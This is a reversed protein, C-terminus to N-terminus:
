VSCNLAREAKYRKLSDFLRQQVAGKGALAHVIAVDVTDRAIVRYVFIRERQGQRWVRRLFQDDLEQDYTLSHYIVARGASQLNLGHAVSQPQGLLVPLLGANWARVIRDAEKPTVGGGIHPPVSGLVAKLGQQLRELDHHFEYSILAPQGALEEVLECVADTKADHVNKWRKGGLETYIGGNALQRCKMSAVGSNLATVLDGELELFLESEMSDYQERAKKDLDVYVTRQILPPLELYDGAEMRLAVPKIAKHIRRETDPLMIWDYEGIQNFYQARFHTFYPGLAIGGDVLYIQSFLNMLGNPAPSGTLAYRRVFRRLHRKLLKFRQTSSNKFRSSEDVVLMDFPWEQKRFDAELTRFLWELGEPNILYVDAPTHLAQAKHPGHLTVVRLGNFDAWKRAEAPWVLGMPRLPVIVLMARVFEKARLVGYLAYAIATKGLGPDLFLAAGARELAFRLAKKQYKHPAWRIPKAETLSAGNDTALLPSRKRSTVSRASRTASGVRTM